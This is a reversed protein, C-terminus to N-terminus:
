SGSIQLATIAGLNKATLYITGDTMALLWATDTITSLNWLKAPIRPLGSLYLFPNSTDNQINIWGNIFIRNGIRHWYCHEASYITLGSSASVPEWTGSEQLNRVETPIIVDEFRKANDLRFAGPDIEACVTASYTEYGLGSGTKYPVNEDIKTQKVYLAGAFAAGEFLCAKGDLIVVGPTVQGGNVQCGHLVFNGYQAYFDETLSLLTKQVYLWDDGYWLRGGPVQTLQKM